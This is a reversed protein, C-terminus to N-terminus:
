STASGSIVIGEDQSNHILQSDKELQGPFLKTIDELEM